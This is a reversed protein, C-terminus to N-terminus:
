FLATLTLRASLPELPHYTAGFQAAATPSVQYEYAYQSAAAHTNFLNFVSLRIKLHENIKHGAELNVEKYGPSRLSNDSVLPQPGLWRLEIGGFWPGLNDVIAGFSGIFNPANPIFLGGNYPEDLGYAAPNGTRFRSHTFNVDGNLELWDYPRVQASLEIGDLRAPPGPQNQGIDADYTLFSNFDERFVAATLSTRPLIDSRIGIEESTIKTLLPTTQAVINNGIQTPMTGLVGRLDNSHFGRGASFYLESKEWPGFV